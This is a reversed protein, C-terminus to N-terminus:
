ACLITRGRSGAARKTSNRIMFRCLNLIYQIVATDMRVCFQFIAPKLQSLCNQVFIVQVLTGLYTRICKFESISHVM